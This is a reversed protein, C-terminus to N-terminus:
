LEYAEENKADAGFSSRFQRAVATITKEPGALKIYYVEDKVELYAALMRSGPTPKSQQRVPPGIPKNYTGTVEALYYSGHASKGKTLKVKRDKAEFQDIWRQLNAKVGGAGGAFFFYVLEGPETDGEAAPVEFQAVRMNSTVPQQKWSEPIQLTLNRAKVERTKETKEKSGEDPEGGLAGSALVPALLLCAALSTLRRDM